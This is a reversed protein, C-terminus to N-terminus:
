RPREARAPLRTGRPIRNLIQLAFGTGYPKHYSYLPYDWYSGDPQRCYLVAELMRPWLRDQVDQAQQQLVYSAYAHGYLYFYGSIAYWSEHPMPRRVGARQFGAHRVLLDDLSSVVSTGTPPPVGFLELAYHCLPNRCASGKLQNIGHRPRYELYEGYLFAGDPLRSRLLHDVARELMREPLAVGGRRARELGVLITATTFSMSTDSPQFTPVEDLSLYGWGGDLTQYVGLKEILRACVGKLEAARAHEPQAILREGLAQLSYGFAWVNYHELGSQRKVNWHALLFDTAREVALAGSDGARPCEQLASVCLATTAVRFAEQSGPVSALVEIPRPSHHSGWSGDRNQNEVLWRVAEDVLQEVTLDPRTPDAAPTAAQALVLALAGIV